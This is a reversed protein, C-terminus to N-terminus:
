VIIFLTLRRAQCSWIRYDYWGALGALVAGVLFGFVNGSAVAAIAGVAFLTTWLAWCLGCVMRWTTMKYRVASGAAESGTTPIFQAQPSHAAHRGGPV